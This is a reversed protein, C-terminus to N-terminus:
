GSPKGLVEAYKAAISRWSFHESQARRSREALAERYEQDVLVRLLEPGFADKADPPVLVVGAQTIPASTEWGESAIVPLGCAIGAIASGRRSSIPGRVFLMADCRGLEQVVQDGPLVGRVSVEVPKGFLRQHLPKQALASNRGLIVLRLAGLKETVFLAADAIAEAEREGVAAESLSFVAVTPFKRSEAGPQVWAREPSPLNAGVPIFVAKRGREAIWSLKEPPVTLVSLDAVRMAARMTYLQVARRIRDIWRSGAYPIADHFVIACRAGSRKLLRVVGLVRWSFGRRSWALATYQLLFWASPREGVKSALDRLAARWGAEAWVVRDIQFHIGHEQLAAGLFSCYEEVADTPEDRRGLLAVCSDSM